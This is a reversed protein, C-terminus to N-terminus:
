RSQRGRADSVMARITIADDNLVATLAHGLAPRWAMQQRKVCRTSVVQQGGIRRLDLQDAPRWSPLPRRDSDALAIAAGKEWLRRVCAAGIVSAAGTIVVVKGEYRGM